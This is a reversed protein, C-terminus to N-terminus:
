RYRFRLLPTLPSALARLPPATRCDGHGVHRCRAVRRWEELRASDALPEAADLGEVVHVQGEVGALHHREGALVAGALRGEDLDQGACILAIGALDADVALRHLDMIRGLGLVEADRDDVLLEVEGGVLGDGLVDEQTVRLPAGAQQAAQVEDVLGGAPLGGPRQEVLDAADTSGSM